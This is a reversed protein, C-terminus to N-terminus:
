SIHSPDNKLQFFFIAWSLTYRGNQIFGWCHWWCLWMVGGGGHHCGSKSLRSQVTPNLHLTTDAVLVRHLMQWPELRLHLLSASTSSSKDWCCFLSKTKGPSATHVLITTTSSLKQSQVQSYMSCKLLKVSYRVKLKRFYPNAAGYSPLFNWLNIKILRVM